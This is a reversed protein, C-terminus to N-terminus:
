LVLCKGKEVWPNQKNDIGGIFPDSMENDQVYKVLDPITISCPTREIRAQYQLNKVNQKLADKQEESKASSM